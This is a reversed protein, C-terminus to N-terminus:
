KLAKQIAEASDTHMKITPLTKAAWTKLDSDDCKESAMQFKKVTEQHDKVMMSMYQKDFSAGSMQNLNELTGTKKPDISDSLTIGKPSVLAKLENGAKTHDNVMMQAFDKVRQNQAQSIAAQSAQIETNGGKAADMVFQKDMDNLPKTSATNMTASGTDSVPANNSTDSYTTTSDATNSSTGSNCAFLTTVALAIAFYTKKM